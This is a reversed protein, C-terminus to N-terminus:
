TRLYSSCFSCPPCAARSVYWSSVGLIAFLAKKPPPVTGGSTASSPRAMMAVVTTAAVSGPPVQSVGPLYTFETFMPFANMGKSNFTVLVLHPQLPLVVTSGTWTWTQKSLCEGIAIGMKRSAIDSFPPPTVHPPSQPPLTVEEEEESDFKTPTDEWREKVTQHADSWAKEKEKRAQM